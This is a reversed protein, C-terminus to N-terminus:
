KDDLTDQFDGVYTNVLGIDKLDSLDIGLIPLIFSTSKQAKLYNQIKKSHM